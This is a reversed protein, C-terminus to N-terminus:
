INLPKEQPIYKVVKSYVSLFIQKKLIIGKKFNNNIDLM